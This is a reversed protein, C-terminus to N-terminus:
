ASVTITGLSCSGSTTCYCGVVNLNQDYQPICGTCGSCTAGSGAGIAYQSNARFIIGTGIDLGADLVVSRGDSCQAELLYPGMAWADPAGQSDLRLPVFGAKLVLNSWTGGFYTSLDSAKQTPNDLIPVNNVLHGITTM